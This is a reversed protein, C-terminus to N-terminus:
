LGLKAKLVDDICRKDLEGKLTVTMKGRGAINTYRIGAYTWDDVLLDRVTRLVAALHARIADHQKIFDAPSIHSPRKAEEMREGLKLLQAASLEQHEDGNYRYKIKGIGSLSIKFHTQLLLHLASPKEMFEKKSTKPSKLEWPDNRTDYYDADGLVLLRLPECGEQQLKTQVLRYKSLHLLPDWPMVGQYASPRTPPPEMGAQEYIEKEEEELGWEDTESHMKTNNLFIISGVRAATFLCDKRQYVISGIYSLIGAYGFFAIGESMKYINNNRLLSLLIQYMVHVHPIIGNPAKMAFRCSEPVAHLRINADHRITKDQMVARWKETEYNHYVAQFEAIAARRVVVHVLQNPIVIEKVETPLSRTVQAISKQKVLKCKTCNYRCEKKKMNEFLLTATEEECIPCQVLQGPNTPTPVYVSRESLQNTGPKCDAKPVIPMPRLAKKGHAYTCWEGKVCNGRTFHDCLKTKHLSTNSLAHNTEASVPDLQQRDSSSLDMYVNNDETADATANQRIPEIVEEKEHSYHCYEPGYVCDEMYMCRRRRLEEVGHAYDCNAGKACFGATEFRWCLETKWNPHRANNAVRAITGNSNPSSPLQHQVREQAGAALRPFLLHF